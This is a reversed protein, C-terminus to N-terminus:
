WTVTPLDDSPLGHAKSPPVIVIVVGSPMTWLTVGPPRRYCVRQLQHWPNGDPFTGAPQPFRSGRLSWGPARDPARDGASDPGRPRAGIGPEVALDDRASAHARAIDIKM